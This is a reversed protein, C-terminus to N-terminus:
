FTDHRRIRPFRTGICSKRFSGTYSDPRPSAPYCEIIVEAFPPVQTGLNLELVASGTRGLFDLVIFLAALDFGLDFFATFHSQFLEMDRFMKRIREVQPDAM